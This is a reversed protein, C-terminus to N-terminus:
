GNLLAGFYTTRDERIVTSPFSTPVPGNSSTVPLTAIRHGAVHESVLWYVRTDSYPTDIGTGYFEIADSPGLPGAANGLILLPQEIGEAFLHLTRANTRPDLGAAFLQASSIHYWGEARVSIKVAAEAATPLGRWVAGLG